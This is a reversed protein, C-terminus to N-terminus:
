IRHDMMITMRKYVGGIGKDGDQETIRVQCGGLRTLGGERGASYRCRHPENYSSFLM